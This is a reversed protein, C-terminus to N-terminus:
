RDPEVLSALGAAQAVTISRRPPRHTPRAFTEPEAGVRAALLALMNDWCPFGQCTGMGCSTLRKLVEPDTEGADIHSYLEGATVDMCPCILTDPHVHRTAHIREDGRAASGIISVSPPLPRAEVQFLGEGATQFGLSPDARWPGAHVVVDCRIQAGARVGTVRRRGSIEILDSVPGRHVVDVGLACLKEAVDVEAGTGVVAVREGPKVRHVAALQLASYADFVGPLQSGKVLPPMSRRGTALVTENPLLAVAGRRHDHPAAVMLTGDRYAGFLEMGYFLRVGSNLEEVAAGMSRAFRALSDGRTVLAVTQGLAARRNAEAIGAPGGGVVLCEVELRQGPVIAPVTAIDAPRAVGALNAMTREALRYALGSKPMWAGHEFGGYVLKAPLAQAFRLVDFRPSPWTNQMEVVLGTEVPLQDLRVNPRGNVRALVGTPNSGSYGLPRHVKRSRALTTIGARWLAAAVTDGRRGTISTGNWFFTVALQRSDQDM